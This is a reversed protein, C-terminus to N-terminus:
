KWILYYIIGSIKEREALSNAACSLSPSIEETSTQECYISLIPLNSFSTFAQDCKLLFSSKSFAASASSCLIEPFGNPNNCPNGTATLSMIPVKSIGVSHPVVM